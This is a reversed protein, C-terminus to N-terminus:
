QEWATYTVQFNHISTQNTNPTIKLEQLQLQPLRTELELFARQMTRFSGRFGIRVQSSKQSTVSGFGGVGGRPDFATQEIEKAPLGEIIHKVVTAVESATEAAFQAKWHEMHPRSRNIEGEAKLAEVRTNEFTRYHRQKEALSDAMKRKLMLSGVVIGVAFILPLVLGFLIIPVRYFSM